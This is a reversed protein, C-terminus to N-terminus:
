HKNDLNHSIYPRLRAYYHLGTHLHVPIQIVYSAVSSYYLKLYAKSKVQLASVIENIVQKAEVVRLWTHDAM